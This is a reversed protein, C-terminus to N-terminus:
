KQFTGGCHPCTLTRGKPADEGISEDFSKYGLSEVMEEPSEPHLFSKLDVENWGLLSLDVEGELDQLVESLLDQNWESIEALKNDALAYALAKERPLHDVWRVPVRGPPCGAPSWSPGKEQSLRQYAKLTTHGALLLREGKEGWATLARGFGFEELSRMIKPIANEQIRPNRDWPQLTAPDEFSGILPSANKPPM